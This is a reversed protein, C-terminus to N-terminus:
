SGSHVLLIWVMYKVKKNSQVSFYKLYFKYFEIFNVYLDCM